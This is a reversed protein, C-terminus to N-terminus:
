VLMGQSVLCHYLRRSSRTRSSLKKRQCRCSPTLLPWGPGFVAVPRSAGMPRHSLHLSKADRALYTSFITEIATKQHELFVQLFIFFAFKAPSTPGKVTKLCGCSDCEAFWGNENPWVSAGRRKPRKPWCRPRLQWQTLPSLPYETFVLTYSDYTPVGEMPLDNKYPFWTKEM